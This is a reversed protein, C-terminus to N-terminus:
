IGAYWAYGQNEWTGGRGEGTHAFREVVEIRMVYSAHKYGLNCAVRLRYPAGNPVPLAEGNLDYALIIQWNFAGVM